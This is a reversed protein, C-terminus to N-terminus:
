KKNRKKIFKLPNGAYVSWSRLDKKVFSLAGITTGQNITCKGLIISGSGIIVNSMVKVHGKITKNFKTFNLYDDIKSYIKVGQSININNNINIGGACGLYCQGGIHVNSGIKLRGEKASIITYDDIRVNNGIEINKEGIITANQSIKINSGLKKFGYKKLLNKNIFKDNM